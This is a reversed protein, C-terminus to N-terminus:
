KLLGCYIYVFTYHYIPDQRQEGLHSITQKDTWDKQPSVNCILSCIISETCKWLPADTATEINKLLQKRLKDVQVFIQIAHYQELLAGYICNINPIEYIGLKNLNPGCSQFIHTSVRWIWLEIQM